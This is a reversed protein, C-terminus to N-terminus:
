AGGRGQLVAQIKANVASSCAAAGDNWFWVAQPAALPGQRLLRNVFVADGAGSGALDFTLFLKSYPVAGGARTAGAQLVAIQDAYSAHRRRGPHARGLGSSPPRFDVRGM